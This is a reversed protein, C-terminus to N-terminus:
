PTNCDLTLRQYTQYLHPFGVLASGLTLMGIVAVKKRLQMELGKVIWFALALTVIDLIVNLISHTWSIVSLSECSGVHEGDWGDWFYSPPQCQLADVLAFVVGILINIAILIHVVRRFSSAGFIRLYFCLISTRTFANGLKYGIAAFYFGQFYIENLMYKCIM